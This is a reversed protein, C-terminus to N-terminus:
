DKRLPSATLLLFPALLPFSSDCCELILKRGRNCSLTRARKSYWYQPVLISQLHTQRAQLWLPLSSGITHDHQWASCGIDRALIPCTCALQCITPSGITPTAHYLVARWPRIWKIWKYITNATISMADFLASPGKSGGIRRKRKNIYQLEKERKLM